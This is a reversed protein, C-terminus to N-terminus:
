RHRNKQKATKKQWTMKLVVLGSIERMMSPFTVLSAGLVVLGVFVKLPMALIITNFQPQM